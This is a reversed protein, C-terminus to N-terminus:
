PDFNGDQSNQYQANGGGINFVNSIPNEDICAPIFFPWKTLTGGIHKGGLDTLCQQDLKLVLERDLSLPGTKLVAEM